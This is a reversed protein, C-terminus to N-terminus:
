KSSGVRPGSWFLGGNPAGEGAVIDLLKAFRNCKKQYARHGNVM